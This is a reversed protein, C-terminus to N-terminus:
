RAHRGLYRYKVVSFPVRKKGLRRNVSNHVSVLWRALSDRDKMTKMTLNRSEIAFEKRCKPCPLVYKLMKFFGFFRYKTRESPYRPYAFTVAHLFKWGPAGWQIM